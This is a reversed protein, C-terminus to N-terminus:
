FCAPKPIKKGNATWTFPVVCDAVTSVPASNAPASRASAPRARSPLTSRGSRPVPGISSTSPPPSLTTLVTNSALPVTPDLAVAESSMALGSADVGPPVAGSKTRIMAVVAAGAALGLLASALMVRRRPSPRHARSLSPMSGPVATSSRETDQDLVATSIGDGDPEASVAALSGEWSANEINAVLLARAQLTEGAMDAVWASLDRASAQPRAAVLALAMDRATAFRGRPDASMGRMVIDDLAKPLNPVHYSPPVRELELVRNLTTLRNDGTILRHGTLLEWLVVSAAYLDVRRDVCGGRIQDPAMYSVKGKLQGDTTSQLRGAAKAIGFDVVRPIGETTVLINQPSVDRHVINLPSGMEDRAEHAAHLGDLVGVLVATAVRPDMVEGRARHASALRALSEGHVYEMVLLVEQEVLVIDSVSVVNPHQIRAAIRAEDIFMTVVNPDDDAFHSAHLQKIAVTRSFGAPGILRGLHVSAM